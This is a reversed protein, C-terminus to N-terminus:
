DKSAREFCAYLQEPTMEALDAPRLSFVEGLWPKWYREPKEGGPGFM